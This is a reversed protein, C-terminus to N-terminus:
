GAVEPPPAGALPLPEEDGFTHAGDLLKETGGEENPAKEDGWLEGIGWSSGCQEVGRAPAADVQRLDAFTLEGSGGLRIRWLANERDGLNGIPAERV